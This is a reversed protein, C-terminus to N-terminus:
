RKSWGLIIRSGRGMSSLGPYGAVLTFASAGPNFVVEALQFEGDQSVSTINSVDFTAIDSPGDPVTNPAWNTALDWDGSAPNLNWTASGAVVFHSPLLLFASFLLLVFVKVHANYISILHSTFGFGRWVRTGLWGCM